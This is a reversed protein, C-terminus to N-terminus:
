NSTSKKSSLVFYAGLAIAAIAVVALYTAVGTAPLTASKTVTRTVDFGNGVSNSSTVKITNSGSGLVVEKEFVGNTDVSVTGQDSDNVYVKVTAAPDNVSGKVTLRDATTTSNNEPATLTVKPVASYTSFHAASLTLSRNTLDYSINSAMSSSDGGNYKVDPTGTYPLDYITLEAGADKLLAMTSDSLGFEGNKDADLSQGITRLGEM